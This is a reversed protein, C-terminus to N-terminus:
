VQKPFKKWGKAHKFTRLREDIIPSGFRTELERKRDEEELIKDILNRPHDNFEDKVLLTAYYELFSKALPQLTEDFYATFENLMKEVETQEHDLKKTIAPHIAPNNRWRYWLYDLNASYEAKHYILLLPAEDPHALAYQLTWLFDREYDAIVRDLLQEATDPGPYYNMMIDLNKRREIQFKAINVILRRMAEDPLTAIHVSTAVAYSVAPLHVDQDVIRRIVGTTQLEQLRDSLTRSSM